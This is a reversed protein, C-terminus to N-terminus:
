RNCLEVCDIMGIFYGFGYAFLCIAVVAMSFWFVYELYKM